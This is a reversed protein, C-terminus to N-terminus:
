NGMNEDDSYCHVAKGPLTVAAQLQLIFDATEKQHERVIASLEASNDAIRKFCGYIFYLEKLMAWFEKPPLPKPRYGQILMRLLASRTLGCNNAHINLNEAKDETVRFKFLIDRTEM